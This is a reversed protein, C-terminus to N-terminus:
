WEAGLEQRIAAGIAPPVWALCQKLLQGRRAVQDELDHRTRAEAALTDLARVYRKRIEDPSMDASTDHPDM